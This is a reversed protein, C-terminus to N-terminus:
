FASQSDALVAHPMRAIMNLSVGRDALPFVIERARDFEMFTKRKEAPNEYVKWYGTLLADRGKNNVFGLVDEIPYGLFLGIEHPFDEGMERAASIRGSLHSVSQDVDTPEYGLDRLMEAVVDACIANLLMDKRYLFILSSGASSYVVTVTVPSGDFIRRVVAADSDSAYIMNACKLGLILPSCLFAVRKDIEHKGMAKAIEIVRESM